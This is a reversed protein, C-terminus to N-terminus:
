TIDRGIATQYQAQDKEFAYRGVKTLLTENNRGFILPMEPLADVPKESLNKSIADPFASRKSRGRIDPWGDSGPFVLRTRPTCILAIMSM